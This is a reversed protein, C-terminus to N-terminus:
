KIHKSSIQRVVTKTADDPDPGFTVRVEYTKLGGVIQFVATGEQVVAISFWGWKGTSCHPADHFHYQKDMDILVSTLLAEPGFYKAVKTVDSPHYDEPIINTLDSYCNVSGHPKTKEPSIYLRVSNGPANAERIEFNGGDETVTLKTKGSEYRDVMAFASTPVLALAAVIGTMQQRFTIM